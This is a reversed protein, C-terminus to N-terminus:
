VYSVDTRIDCIVDERQILDGEKKYWKEVVGINIDSKENCNMM